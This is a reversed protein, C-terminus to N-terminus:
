PFPRPYPVPVPFTYPPPGLNLPTYGGGLPSLGPLRPAPALGRSASAGPTIMPPAGIFVGQLAAAAFLERQIVAGLKLKETRGKERSLDVPRVRVEYNPFRSEMLAEWDRVAKTYEGRRLDYVQYQFTDLPRDRRYYVVVKYAIAPAPKAAPQPQPQAPSQAAAIATSILVLPIRM